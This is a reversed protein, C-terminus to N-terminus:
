KPLWTLIHDCVANDPLNASKQTHTIACKVMFPEQGCVCLFARTNFSPLQDHRSLSEETDLLYFFCVIKNSRQTDAYKKNTLTMKLHNTKTM